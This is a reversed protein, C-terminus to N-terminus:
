ASQKLTLALPVRHLMWVGLPMPREDSRGEAAAAAALTVTVKKNKEGERLVLTREAPASGDAEFVFVHSGPEVPLPKGDIKDTLPAGDVKVRVDTRLAGAPTRPDLVVSPIAGELEVLWKNCDKTLLANCVDRACISAQVKAAAPKGDKRLTQTQEYAAICTPDAQASAAGLVVAVAIASSAARVGPKM